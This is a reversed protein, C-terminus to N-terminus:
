RRNKGRNKRSKKGRMKRLKQKPLETQQKPTKIQHSPISAESNNGGFSSAFLTLLLPLIKNAM